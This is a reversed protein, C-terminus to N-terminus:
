ALCQRTLAAAALDTAAWPLSTIRTVARGQMGSAGWALLELQALLLPWGFAPLVNVRVKSAHVAMFLFCLVVHVIFCRQSSEATIVFRIEQKRGM